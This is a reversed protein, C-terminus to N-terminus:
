PNPRSTEARKLFVTCYTKNNPKTADRKTADGPPSEEGGIATDPRDTKDHVCVALYDRTLIYVGSKAAGGAPDFKGDANTETAKLTGNPGFMVKMPQMKAKNLIDAPAGPAPSFTVMNDKINVILHKCDESPQGNKEAAVVTWNGEISATIAKDVVPPLGENPKEAFAFLATVLLANMKSEEASPFRV